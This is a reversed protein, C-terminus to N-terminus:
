PEVTWTGTMSDIFFQGSAADYKIKVSSGAVSSQIYKGAVASLPLISKTAQPTIRLTANTAVANFKVPKDNNFLAPLTYTVTSAPTAGRNDVVTYVADQVMTTFASTSSQSEYCIENNDTVKITSQARIKDRMSNAGGSTTGSIKIPNNVYVGDINNAVKGDVFYMGRPMKNTARNDIIEPNNIEVNGIPYSFTSTPERYIVIGSAYQPNVNIAACNLVYPDNVVIKPTKRAAYESFYIGAQTADYIKPNNVTIKGSLVATAHEPLREFSLGRTNGSTVLNDITVSINQTSGSLTNLAVIFGSGENNVCSINNFYINELYETSFNPEIDFGCAPASGSTNKAVMGNITVNKGSILAGGVLRNNDLTINEIYIDNVGILALGAGWADKATVGILRVNSCGYLGLVTGGEGTTGTHTPKDGYFTGGIVEVNTAGSLSLVRYSDKNNPALRLSAGPQFILRRNSPVLIATNNSLAPNISVLFEASHFVIEGPNANVAAQIKLTEDVSLGGTVDFWKVYVAGSFDRKWRRGDAGVIITGGNDASTTDTPDYQFVGAIGAPKATGLLGTIYVRSARGTYARLAAYDQLSKAGDLVDQVTGGDYGVLSSGSSAALNATSIDSAQWTTGNWRKLLKATTNWYEDGETPPNGLPDTAPDSAYAGYSTARITQLYGLAEAASAAADARYVNLDSEADALQADFDANMGAVTRRAVGLRDTFSNATGNVVEDLKGANFLLDSPDTSPVPNTTPM